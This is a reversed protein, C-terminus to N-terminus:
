QGPADALTWSITASHSGQTANGAPIELTVSDNETAGTVTPLWRTIWSGFGTDEAASVVTAPEGGMTLTITESAVPPTATLNNTVVESNTLTLVAGDLSTEGTDSTFDSATATVNWGEGTGRRDTVQIFPRLTESAYEADGAQIENTGFTINSVFDLTLPGTEGTFEGQPDAPAPGPEYPTTPTTPDLVDPADTAPTFEIVATSDAATVPTALSVIVLAGLASLSLLKKTKKM